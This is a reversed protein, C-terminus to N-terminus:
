GLFQNPLQGTIDDFQIRFLDGAQPQDTRQTPSLDTWASTIYLQNLDAGGFTCSTPCEVPLTIEREPLGDPDYRIIKSGGWRASWVFGQSDVTLGDPVGPQEPDHVFVQRSGAEGTAPDFDYRYITHRLTDTFYFRGGDPSWGLGNGITLNPQILRVSENHDLRYLSGPFPGSSQPGPCMTGAWFNGAPGVAADNCRNHPLHQEPDLFLDIQDSLGDWYGFGEATATIFGGSKRIGLATVPLPFHTSTHKETNPSFRHIQHQEIDVWYLNQEAPHWLPGEGLKNQCALIHQLQPM